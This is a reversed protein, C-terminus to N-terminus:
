LFVLLELNKTGMGVLQILHLIMMITMRRGDMVEVSLRAM